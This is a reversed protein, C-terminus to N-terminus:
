SHRQRVRRRVAKLDEPSNVNRRWGAYPLPIFRCHRERVLRRIIDELEVERGSRPELNGGTEFSTAPLIAMGCVRDATQGTFEDKHIAVVSGEEVRVLGIPDRPPSLIPETLVAGEAGSRRWTELYGDLPQDFFVDGMVTIFPGTVFEAAHLIADGVGRPVTQVAYHLRIQHWRPGFANEVPGDPRDVVLCIDSACTSLRELLWDLLPVVGWV